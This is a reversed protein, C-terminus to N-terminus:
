AKCYPGQTKQKKCRPGRDEEELGRAGHEEAARAHGRGGAAGSCRCSQEGRGRTTKGNRGGGTDDGSDEGRRAVDPQRASHSGRVSARRRRGGDHARGTVV